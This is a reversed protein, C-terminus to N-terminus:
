YMWNECWLVPIENRINLARGFFQLAEADSSANFISFPPMLCQCCGKTCGHQAVTTKSSCLRAHRSCIFTQCSSSTNTANQEAFCLCFSFNLVAPKSIARCLLYSLQFHSLVLLWFCWQKQWQSDSVWEDDIFYWYYPQSKLKKRCEIQKMQALWSWPSPLLTLLTRHCSTVM